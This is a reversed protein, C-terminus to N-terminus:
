EADLISDIEAQIQRAYKSAEAKANLGAFECNKFYITQGLTREEGLFRNAFIEGEVEIRVNREEEYFHIEAIFKPTERILRIYSCGALKDELKPQSAPAPLARDSKKATFITKKNLDADDRM